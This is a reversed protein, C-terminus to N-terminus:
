LVVIRYLSNRGQSDTVRLLYIGSTLATTSIENLTDQFSYKKIWRGTADSIDVSIENAEKQLLKIAQGRIAPVPFILFTKNATYYIKQEASFIVSGDSLTIKLRYSNIGQTLANDTIEYFSKIDLSDKFIQKIGPGTKEIAVSQIGYLSGLTIRIRAASDDVLDALFNNIYCGVGTLNLNEAASKLGDRGDIVPAVAYYATKDTPLVFSTDNTEKLISMAEGNFRYVRWLNHRLPNHWYWLTSDCVYGPLLGPVPNIVFRDSCYVDPGIKMRIWATSITDPINWRANRDSVNVNENILRWHLSDTSWELRGSINDPLSAFWRVTQLKGAELKAHQSPYMWEFKGVSDYQWVLAYPQSGGQLLTSKIKIAYQGPDPDAITVQETNNVTDIGQIAPLSLSDPHPYINLLWPRFHQSSTKHEVTLDLDNILSVPSLAAAAPDNWVLTIKLNMVDEPLTILIEDETFPRILDKRIRNDKLTQVARYLNLNGYGSIFDPGKRDADDATNILVARIIDSGASSGFTKKYINQLVAVAGSVLAASGSSGDEAFAVLDPKVRGDFAPGRSSAAPVIGNSDIAGVVLVNKAMKMNGTLNAYKEIGAYLGDTSKSTGSNGSSFVHTLSPNELTSLDFARANAGYYNQIGTGYSHNQINIGYTRYILNNDPLAGSFDSSAYSSRRAVGTGKLSSNGAGAILTTMSTAHTSGLTSEVGTRVFRKVLDIDASDMRDEKVSIVETSGNDAPYKQHTAHIANVSLDHSIVYGETVPSVEANDAFIVFDTSLLEKLQEVSCSIIVFNPLLHRVIHIDSNNRQYYGSFASTDNIEILFRYWHKASSKVAAKKLQPSLKSVIKASLDRHWANTQATLSFPSFILVLVIIHVYLRMVM